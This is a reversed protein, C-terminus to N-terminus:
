SHGPFRLPHSPREPVGAFHTNAIPIRMPTASPPPICIGCKQRVNANRWHTNCSLFSKSLRWVERNESISSLILILISINININVIITINVSIYGM